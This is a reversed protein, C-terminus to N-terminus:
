RLKAVGPTRPSCDGIPDQRIDAPSSCPNTVFLYRSRLGTRSQLGPIRTYISGLGPRGVHGGSFVRGEKSVAFRGGGAVCACDILLGGAERYLCLPM